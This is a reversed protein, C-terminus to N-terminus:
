HTAIAAKVAARWDEHDTGTADADGPELDGSDTAHWTDGDTTIVAVEHATRDAFMGFLLWKEDGHATLNYEVDGVAFTIGEDTPLEIEDLTPTDSM